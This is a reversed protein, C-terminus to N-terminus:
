KMRERRDRLERQLSKVQDEMTKVQEEAAFLDKSMKKLSKDRQDIEQSLIRYQYRLPPRTHLSEQEVKKHAERQAAAYAEKEKQLRTVERELESVRSQQTKKHALLSSDICLM